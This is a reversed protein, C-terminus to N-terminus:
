EAAQTVAHRRVIPMVEDALRRMSEQGWAHNAGSWDVGTV